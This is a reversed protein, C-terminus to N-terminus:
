IPHDSLIHYLMCIAASQFLAAGATLVVTEQRGLVGNTSWTKMSHSQINTEQWLQNFIFYFYAGHFIVNVEPNVLIHRKKRSSRDAGARRKLSNKNSKRFTIIGTIMQRAGTM